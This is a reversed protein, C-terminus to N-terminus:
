CLHDTYPDLVISAHSIEAIPDLPADNEYLIWEVGVDRATEIAREIDLDGEGVTIFAREDFQMDKLHIHTVRDGISSLFDAPDVGGAGAWGLDLEFHLRETERYLHYLAPEGDIEIFEHDHNHYHLRMGETALQNALADLEAALESIAELSAFREDPQYMIIVDDTGYTDRAHVHADLEDEIAEPSSAFSSVALGSPELHAEVDAARGLSLEIGEYRATVARQLTREIPEDLTGLTHPQLGVKM